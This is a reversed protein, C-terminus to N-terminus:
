TTGGRSPDPSDVLMESITGGTLKEIALKLEDAAVNEENSRLRFFRKLLRELSFVRCTPHFPDQYVIVNRGETGDTGHGEQNV